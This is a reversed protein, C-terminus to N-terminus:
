IVGAGILPNSPTLSCQNSSVMNGDIKGTAGFAIQIGNPAIFPQAPVLASVTNGSIHCDTGM